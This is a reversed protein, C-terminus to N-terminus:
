SLLKIGAFLQSMFVSRNLDVVIKGHEDTFAHLISEQHTKCEESLQLLSAKMDRTIAEFGGLKSIESKKNKNTNKANANAVMDDNARPSNQENINNMQNNFSDESLGRSLITWKLAEVRKAQDEVKKEEMALMNVLVEYKLRCIINMAYKNINHICGAYSM